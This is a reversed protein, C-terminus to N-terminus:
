QYIILDPSPNLDLVEEPTLLPVDQDYFIKVGNYEIPMAGNVADYTARKDAPTGFGDCDIVLQVGKVLGITDKNEIMSLLFQHVVLVKPPIGVEASLDALYNQAWTVDSGDIQGVHQSPIEGDRMAFEPDIALHVFPKELWPRLGEVEEQVTRYGVQVDLVLLIDNEEAFDAYQNLLNSPADQLYSGDVQPEPQAVSAIVEMAILVPRSPDAEEYAAAQERLHVLLEEPGYQGLIGMQSDGPFGYFTLLRNAPFLGGETNTETQQQQFNFTPPTVAQEGNSGGARGSEVVKLSDTSVSPPPPADVDDYSITPLVTASNQAQDHAPPDNIAAGHPTAFWFSAMVLVIVVLMSLTREAPLRPALTLLSRNVSATLRRPREPPKPPTTLWASSFPKPNKPM